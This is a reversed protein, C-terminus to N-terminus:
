RRTVSTSRVLGTDPNLACSFSFQEPHYQGDARAMGTVHDGDPDMNISNIRVDWFGQDRIRDAVAARCGDMGAATMDRGAEGYRERPGNNYAVPENEIRLSRVSGSLFSVSCSFHHDLANPGEGIRVTGDVTGGLLGNNTNVQDFRIDNTGFQDVARQRVGDRCMRVARDRMQAGAPVALAAGAVLTLLLRSNM